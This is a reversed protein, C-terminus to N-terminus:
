PVRWHQQTLGNCDWIQLQTGDVTSAAPDDLCRGSIPNLVQGDPLTFWEQNDGGNCAWLQLKSGNATGNSVVDLCKGQVRLTNDPMATWQQSKGGNCGWVQIKTGNATSAHNDDVCVGPIASTFPGSPLTWNQQVSGNCNWIQLKVGNASSANPIDLCKGSSNNFLEGDSVSWEQSQSITNNSSGCSYLVVRTGNATAGNATSLCKGFAEISYGDVQWQQAAGGNCSWSQVPNGDATGSATDDLCKGAIASKVAGPEAPGPGPIGDFTVMVSTTAGLGDSVRVNLLFWGQGSSQLISGTILGSSSVSLGPPPAACCLSIQQFTLTQGPVSDAAQLQLSVPYGVGDVQEAPTVATITGHVDWIFNASGQAGTPDTATVTVSYQGGTSVTGSIAGTSSIALGAPLGSASFTLVAGATSDRATVQLPTITTGVLDSQRGPNTVEVVAGASAAARASVVRASTTSVVATAGASLPSLGPVALGAVVALIVGARRLAPVTRM